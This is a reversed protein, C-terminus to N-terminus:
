YLSPLAVAGERGMKGWAFTDVCTGNVMCEDGYWWLIMVRWLGTGKENEM